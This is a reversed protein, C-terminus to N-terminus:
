NQQPGIVGILAHEHQFNGEWKNGIYVLWRPTSKVSHQVTMRLTSYAGKPIEMLFLINGINVHGIITTVTMFIMEKKEILLPPTIVVPCANLSVVIM